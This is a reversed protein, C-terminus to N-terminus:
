QRGANLKKAPTQPRPKDTPPAPLRLVSPPAHLGQIVRLFAEEAAQRAVVRDVPDRIVEYLLVIAKAEPSLDPARHETSDPDISGEGTALWFFNINLYAAAKATNYASMAGDGNRGGKLASWVAQKTLNLHAALQADSKGAHELAQRLRAAFNMTTLFCVFIMNSLFRDFM